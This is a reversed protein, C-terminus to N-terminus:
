SDGADFDVHFHEDHRVWPTGRMWLATLGCRAAREVSPQLEPALIVRRVRVGHDPALRVLACILM